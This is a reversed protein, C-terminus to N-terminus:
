DRGDPYWLNGLAKGKLIEEGKEWQRGQNERESEKELGGLERPCPSGTTV